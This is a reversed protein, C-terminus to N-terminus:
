KTSILPIVCVLGLQLDLEELKPLCQHTKSEDGLKTLLFNNSVERLNIKKNTLEKTQIKGNKGCPRNRLRSVGIRSATEPVATWKSRNQGELSFNRWCQQTVPPQM